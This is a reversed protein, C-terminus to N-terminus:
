LLHFKLFYIASYLTLASFLVKMVFDLLHALLVLEDPSDKYASIIAILVFIVVIFAYFIFTAIQIM